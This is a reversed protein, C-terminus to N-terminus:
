CNLLVVALVGFLMGITQLRTFSEKFVIMSLIGSIILTRASLVSYYITGPLLLLCALGGRNTIGNLAGCVGSLWWGKRIATRITTRERLLATGWLLLTAIALSIIMFATDYQSLFRRQQMRMFVSCLGNSVFLTGVYFLWKLSVTRKEKGRKGYVLLFSLCVCLLGLGQLPTISEDCFVISYGLPIVVSYALSLNTLALSGENLALVCTLAAVAYCSSFGISYPLLSLSYAGRSAFLLFFLFAATTIMASFTCESHSSRRNLFKKCVSQSANTVTNVALLFYGM